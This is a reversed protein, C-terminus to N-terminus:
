VSCHPDFGGPGGRIGCSSGPCMGERLSSSSSSCVGTDGAARSGGGLWRRAAALMGTFQASRDAAAAAATGSAVAVAPEPSPGDEHMAEPIAPLAPPAAVPAYRPACACPPQETMCSVCAYLCVATNHQCLAVAPVRPLLPPPPVLGSTCCCTWVRVTQM